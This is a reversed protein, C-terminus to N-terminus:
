CKRLESCCAPPGAVAGGSRRNEEALNVQSSWGPKRRPRQGPHQYAQQRNAQGGAEDAALALALVVQGLVPGRGPWLQAGLRQGLEAREAVLLVEREEQLSGALLRGGNALLGSTRKAPRFVRPGDVREALKQRIRIGLHLCNGRGPEGPEVGVLGPSIQQVGVSTLVGRRALGDGRGDPRRREALRDAVLGLHEPLAVQLRELRAPWGLPDARGLLQSAAPSAVRDLPQQRQQAIVRHQERGRRNAPDAGSAVLPREGREKADDLLVVRHQALRSGVRESLKPIRRRHGREVLHGAIAPRAGDRRDPGEPPKCRDFRRWLREAFQGGLRRMVDRDGGRAHCGRAARDLRDQAPERAAAGLSQRRQRNQRHEAACLAGRLHGRQEVGRVLRNAEGGRVREGRELRRLGLRLHELHERRFRRSQGPRALLPNRARQREDLRLSVLVAVVVPVFLGAQRSLEGRVQGGLAFALLAELGHQLPDIRHLGGAGLRLADGDDVALLLHREVEGVVHLRALEAQQYRELPRCTRETRLARHGDELLEGRVRDDAYARRGAARQGPRAGLPELARSGTQAVPRELDHALRRLPEHHRPGRRQGHELSRQGLTAGVTRLDDARQALQLRDGGPRRDRLKQADAPELAEFRRGRESLETVAGM